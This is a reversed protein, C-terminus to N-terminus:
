LHLIPDEEYFPLLYKIDQFVEMDPLTLHNPNERFHSPLDEFENTCFFCKNHFSMERCYNIFKIREYFDRSEDPFLQNLNFGHSEILHGGVIDPNNGIFDCFLCMTPEDTEPDNWDEISCNEEESKINYDEEENDDKRWNKGLELYNVLYFKDYESNNPNVKFHKKKRMHLRLVSPSTFTKECYICKLFMMKESLLNLFGDLNVINDPHGIYFSHIDYLHDFIVKRSFCIRCFICMIVDEAQEKEKSLLVEKLMEMLLKERVSKDNGLVINKTGKYFNLYKELFVSVEDSDEVTINHSKLHELLNEQEVFSQVIDDDRHEFPCITM